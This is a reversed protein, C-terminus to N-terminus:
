KKGCAIKFFKKEISGDSISVVKKLNNQTVVIEGRLMNLSFWSFYILRSTVKSCDYEFLSLASLFKENRVGSQVTKFDFLSWMKVKNGNKKILESDFYTTQGDDVNKDIEVWDALVNTSVILLLLILIKKM